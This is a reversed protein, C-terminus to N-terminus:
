GEDSNDIMEEYKEKVVKKIEEETMNKEDGAKKIGNQVSEQVLSDLNPIFSIIILIICIFTNWVPILIHFLNQLFCLFITKLPQIEFFEVELQNDIEKSLKFTLNVLLLFSLIASFEYIWLVVNWFTM